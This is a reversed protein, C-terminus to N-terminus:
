SSRRCSTACSTPARAAPGAASRALVEDVSKKLADPDYAIAAPLTVRIPGRVDTRRQATKEDIGM